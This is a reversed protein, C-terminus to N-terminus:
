KEKMEMKQEIYISIQNVTGFNNDNIDGRSISIEFEEEIWLLLLEIILSDVGLDNIPVDYEEIDLKGVGTEEAIKKAVKQTINKM